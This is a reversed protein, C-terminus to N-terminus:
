VDESGGIENDLSSSGWGVWDFDTDDKDFYEMEEYVLTTAGCAHSMTEGFKVKPVECDCWRNIYNKGNEVSDFVYSKFRLDDDEIWIETVLLVRRNFINEKM